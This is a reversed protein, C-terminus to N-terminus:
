LIDRAFQSPSIGERRKFCRSFYYVDNFGVQQATESISHGDGILEKARNLRLEILYDVPTKGTVERFISGMYSVSIQVVKAMDELTVKESYHETMYSIIKETKRVKDYQIENEGNWFLLLSMIELFVARCRFIRNRSVSIWSKMFTDFLDHLREFLFKDEIKDFTRFPLEPEALEWRGDKWVPCTYYFNVTYCKMLCDAFTHAYRYEGPKYYIFSGKTARYERDNCKFLGEGEYVLLFNHVPCIQKKIRWAPTCIRNVAFNFEPVINQLM